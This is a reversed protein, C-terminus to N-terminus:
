KKAREVLELQELKAKTTFIGYNIFVTKKEIKDITGVSNGDILRVRDNIKYVYAAKELAIKKAEEKKQERIKIVKQLVEKETKKIAEKQKQDIIKDQKKEDKSLKKLPGKKIRKTNEIAVWKFFETSLEKKNNTQFYKNLLENTKRGLSLMRQNNDYLEQFGSLKSQMKEEKEQLSDIHEQGKSKQKVLSDSTKQLRNREKQLNSITKDLRIKETEVRKKARNIISYPIGNKQAVEFTFSSGAQGIFLKYLPELTREDFQMNANTVNDLENALVKLNAYHTTIIGFAKREYFEELFIEALAGGLEPDSGTGFEDILFLTNDNCKKLFSRMNKLRYSYTSLQNEISQNDGIDTLITNFLTTESREHVPILLGSQLMLQLLGITKLTISKGGANPGSIVIIQQKEDLRITQAFTKKDQEKNKKWLVPHFADKFFMKKEKTIKPLLGNISKAYKAKAGVSDLHTLFVLYEELLPTYPHIKSALARLIKVVEQKEEYILNQLERSYALTAEPAIYVIAGTKSSGLLSGKVKRRHMATVALVRQDDIVTEKIDDLYGSSINRTLAHSFSESIKGRINNVEKRIQKLVPSANDSVTGHATIIEKISDSIFTTFQIKDSLSFLTPYYTQFKKLFKKQENVTETVTAVRLFAETELFSNEIALRSTEQTIDEFFHNPLRNENEFSALYENVLNLEFFLKRKNAIPQIELTKEKGLNTICHTAVQELVTTFELDQLTKDSINHIM